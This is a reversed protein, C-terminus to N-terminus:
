LAIIKAITIIMLVPSIITSAIIAEIAVAIEITVTINNVNKSTNNIM